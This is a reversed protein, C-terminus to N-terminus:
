RDVSRLAAMRAFDLILAKRRAPALSNAIAPRVIGGGFGDAVILGVSEPIIELPFGAEVAFYFADCYPEYDTWKSDSRYDEISSKVEVMAINGRRDLAAVDCRRGNPLTWERIPAGGLDVMLRMVGRTIARTVDPRCLIPAPAQDTSVELDMTTTM